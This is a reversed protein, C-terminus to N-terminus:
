GAKVLLKRSVKAAGGAGRVRGRLTVRYGGKSLAKKGARNLKLTLAASQGGPVSGAVTGV